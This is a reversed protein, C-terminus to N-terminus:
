KVGFNDVILVFMVQRWKHRWLSSSIACQYYGHVHLQEALLNNSLKVAQKLGYLGKTCEFYVWRNHEFRLLIYKETLEQPITSIKIRVYEPCDLMTGLYFNGLDMKMFQAAPQLCVGKIMLKVLEM